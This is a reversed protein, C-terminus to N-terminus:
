GLRRRKANESIESLVVKYEALAAECKGKYETLAAEVTAEYKALAREATGTGMSPSAGMGTGMSSSSSTLAAKAEKAEKVAKLVTYVYQLSDSASVDERQSESLLPVIQTTLLMRDKLDMAEKHNAALFQDRLYFCNAEEFLWMVLQVRTKGNSVPFQKHRISTKWRSLTARSLATYDFFDLAGMSSTTRKKDTEATEATEAM